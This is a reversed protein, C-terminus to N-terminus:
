SLERETAVRAILAYFLAYFNREEDLVLSTFGPFASLPPTSSLMLQVTTVRDMFNGGVRERRKNKKEVKRRAVFIREFM